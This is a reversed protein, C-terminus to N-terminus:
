LSGLYRFDLLTHSWIWQGFDKQFRQLQAGSRKDLAERHLREAEALHGQAQLLMALNNFSQLTKPHDEGLKAKGPCPLVPAKCLNCGRVVPAVQFWCHGYVCTIQTEIQVM